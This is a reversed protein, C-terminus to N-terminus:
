FEKPERSSFVVVQQRIEQIAHITIPINRGALEQIRSSLSVQARSDSASLPALDSGPHNHFFDISVVQDWSFNPDNKLKDLIPALDHVSAFYSSSNMFSLRRGDALMLRLFGIEVGHLVQESGLQLVPAPKPKIRYQQRIAEVDKMTYGQSQLYARVIYESFNYRAFVFLRAQMEHANPDDLKLYHLERKVLESFSGFEGVHANVIAGRIFKAEMSKKLVKLAIGQDKDPLHHISRLKQFSTLYQRDRSFDFDVGHSPLSSLESWSQIEQLRLTQVEFLWACRPAAWAAEGLVIVMAFYVFGRALSM